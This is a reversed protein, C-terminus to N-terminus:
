SFERFLGILVAAVGSGFILGTIVMIWLPLLSMPFLVGPYHRAVLAAFRQNFPKRVRYLLVGSAVMVLGIFVLGLGGSTTVVTVAAGTQLILVAGDVWGDRQM